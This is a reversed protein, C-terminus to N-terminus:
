PRSDMRSEVFTDSRSEADTTCRSRRNGAAKWAWRPADAIACRAKRMSSILTPIEASVIVSLAATRVQTVASITRSTMSTAVPTTARAMAATVASTSRPEKSLALFSAAFTITSVTSTPAIIAAARECTSDILAEPESSPMMARPTAACFRRSSASCRMPRRMIPSSAMGANSMAAPVMTMVPTAMAWTTAPRNSGPESRAISASVPMM